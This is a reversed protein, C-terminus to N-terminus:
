SPVTRSLTAWEPLRLAVVMLPRGANKYKQEAFIYNKTPNASCSKLGAKKKKFHPAKETSQEPDDSHNLTKIQEKFIILIRNIM